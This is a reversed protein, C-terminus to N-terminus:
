DRVAAVTELFARAAATVRSYDGDPRAAKTIFSGVGVAAVGAAFWDAVNAPTVGGTPLLPAQPLPERIAKIYSPGIALTPFIKVLDAGAELADTIETPTLAGSISLVKYRNAVRLMDRDLNPSVVINAGAQVCAYAAQADLVTGAGIAVGTGAFERALQEIVGLAGPVSLTVEIARIGGEAAARAVALAEDADSLREILLVGSQTVANWADWKAFRPM